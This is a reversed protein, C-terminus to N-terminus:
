FKIGAFGTLFSITFDIDKDWKERLEEVEEESREEATVSADAKISQYLLGWVLDLKESLPIELAAKVEYNEYDLDLDKEHRIKVPFYKTSGDYKFFAWRGQVVFRIKGPHGFRIEGGVGIAPAGIGAWGDSQGGIVYERPPNEYYKTGTPPGADIDYQGFLGFIGLYISPIFQFSDSPAFTVPTIYASVEAIGSTLESDFDKGEEIVMYEYKKGQYEIEKDIGLYYDRKATASAATDFYSLDVQLTVYKWRQEVSLGFTAIRKDLGFDDIDFSEGPTDQGIQEYYARSTEVVKGEIKMMSGATLGVKFTNEGELDRGWRFAQDASASEWCSFLILASVLIIKRMRGSVEM